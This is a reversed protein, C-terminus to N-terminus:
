DFPTEDLLATDDGASRLEDRVARLSMGESYGKRALMGVLRRVKVANEVGAMTRLKKRVLLRARHEEADHGVTAVAEATVQEDVGRRRLGAALARRGLGHYTHRDRVWSEAFAADDILGVADLRALVQEAVEADIGRRTLARHLEARTRPRATLQRLCIERARQLPDDPVQEAPSSSATRRGARRAPNLERM